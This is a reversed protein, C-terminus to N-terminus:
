NKNKLKLYHDGNKLKPYKPNTLDNVDQTYIVNLTINSNIKPFKPKNITKGNELILHKDLISRKFFVKGCIGCRYQVGSVTEISFPVCEKVRFKASIKM